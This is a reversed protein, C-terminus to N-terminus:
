EEDYDGIKPEKLDIYKWVREARGDKKVVEQDYYEKFAKGFQAIGLPREQKSTMIQKYFRYTERVGRDGDSDIICNDMFNSLPDANANWEEQTSQWTKSHTFKGRKLLLRSLHILSSFVLNKEEQNDRLKSKLHEDRKPDNEFNRRWKVIIWRRFFGQGQDEVKPFRNASFLLNCFPKLIFPQGYKHQVEIGEGSMINKFKGTDYFSNDNLDSFINAMKGVLKACMFKDDALEQLSIKEVNDLGLMNIIYETLVSKGNEGRGLFMFAKEDIQQKIFFSAVIELISEFDGRRFDGDITFSTKLFDWFLTDKLNKEIDEFITEDNIQYEPKTYEVPILVASLHKPTHSTENLTRIDLIGSNISILNSDQDFQELDKGTKRKIKNLVENSEHTSCETILQESREKIINESSASQKYIKGTHILLENNQRNTIIDKENMIKSSVLDIIDSTKKLKIEEQETQNEQIKKSGYGLAQKSLERIKEEAYIPKCHKQNFKVGLYFLDDEDLEPSNIKKSDLYRLIALSRNEGEHFIIDDKIIDNIPKLNESIGNLYPISYEKCIDDIRLELQQGDITKVYENGLIEIPSNDKHISGSCYLLAKGNSKIEIQPVTNDKGDNAVKGKIPKDTYFYIHCKNKNAHQEVITISAINKIGSPCMKDLGLKNDCDIGNLWKNLHEKKHFVQGCIVAMGNNFLGKQKWEDHLENSIPNTQFEAWKVLPIKKKSDAPIVNVGVQYRWYDAWQEPTKSLEM